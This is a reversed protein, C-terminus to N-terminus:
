YAGGSFPSDADRFVDGGQAEDQETALDISALAWLFAAILPFEEMRRLADARGRSKYERAVMSGEGFVLTKVGQTRREALRDYAAFDRHGNVSPPNCLDLAPLRYRHREGNYEHLLALEPVNVPTTWARCHLTEGWLSARRLLEVPDPDCFEAVIEVRRANQGPLASRHEALAILAGPRPDARYTAPWALGGVLRRFCTGTKVDRWLPRAANLPNRAMEIKDTHLIEM